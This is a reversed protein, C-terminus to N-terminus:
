SHEAIARALADKDMKSRGPIGLRRAEEYLEQRTPEAGDAPRGPGADTSAAGSSTDDASASAAPAAPPADEPWRSGVAVVASSAAAGVALAGLAWAPGRRETGLVRDVSLPGPGTEALAVLAAILTLNFEYGGKTAWPGNALHVKRIATVMTGILGAAAVPTAAGAVVLAGGATEVGGVLLANARAPRLDLHEAMQETGERGPGGFWGALKQLGHAAFLGGIVIRAFLRGLGM